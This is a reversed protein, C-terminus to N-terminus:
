DILRNISERTSHEKGVMDLIEADVQEYHQIFLGQMGRVYKPWLERWNAPTCAVSTM